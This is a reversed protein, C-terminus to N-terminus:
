NPTIQDSTIGTPGGFLNLPVCGAIAAGAPNLCQGAVNSPGLAQNLAPVFLSGAKTNSSVTRGYNFSTDWYWGKLFGTEEPLTGDGGAVVRFTDIDQRFDRTGFPVMRMRIDPIDVGFPNFQNNAAAGTFGTANGASLPEPALTQGGQRNVYSGEVY